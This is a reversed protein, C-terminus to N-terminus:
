SSPSLELLAASFHTLKLEADDVFESEELAALKATQCLFALDAGALGDTRPVLHEVLEDLTLATHLNASRLHIRLIEARDEENPLGVHLHV